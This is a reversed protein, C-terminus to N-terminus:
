LLRVLEKIPRFTFRHMRSAGFCRLCDLHESTGYGKHNRFKYQPYKEDLDIMIQDRVVKAAISACSIVLCTRDGRIINKQPISLRPLAVADTLVYDPQTNLRSLALKMAKRTANLINIDDITSSSVTGIGITVGSKHMQNFINQRASAPLLKSDRVLPLWKFDAQEPLMIAAAVVPGALAGRGAEDVGAVYHYGSSFLLNEERRDPRDNGRSIKKKDM